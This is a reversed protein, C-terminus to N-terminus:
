DLFIRYLYILELFDLFTLLDFAIVRCLVGQCLKDVYLGYNWREFELRSSIEDPVTFLIWLLYRQIPSTPSRCLLLISIKKIM